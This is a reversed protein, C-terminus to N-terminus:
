YFNQILQLCKLMELDPASILDIPVDSDILPTFDTCHVWNLKQISQPMISIMVSNYKRLQKIEPYKRIFQNSGVLDLITQDQLTGAAAEGRNGGPLPPLTLPPLRGRDPPEEPYHDCRVSGLCVVVPLYCFM